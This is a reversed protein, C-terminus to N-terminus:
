ATDRASRMRARRARSRLISCGLGVITSLTPFWVNLSISPQLSRVFHFWRRPLYLLEGPELTCEISTAQAFLPFRELDPRELDIPSYFPQALDSPCYLLRAQEPRFLVFRKRGTIQGVLNDLLDFHLPTVSGSPAIWVRTKSRTLRCLARSAYPMSRTDRVLGPLLADLAQNALYYRRGTTESSALDLYQSLPMSTATVSELYGGGGADNRDPEVLIVNACIDDAQERLYEFSWKALAPWDNLLGRLIIPRGPRVYQRWFIRRPPAPLRPIKSVLPLTRPDGQISDLRQNRSPISAPSTGLLFM